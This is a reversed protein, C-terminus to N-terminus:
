SKGLQVSPIPGMAVVELSYQAAGAMFSFSLAATLLRVPVSYIEQM